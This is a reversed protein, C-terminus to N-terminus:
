DVTAIRVPLISEEETYSGNPSFKAFEEADSSYSMAEGKSADGSERGNGIKLKSDAVTACKARKHGEEKNFFRDTPRPDM